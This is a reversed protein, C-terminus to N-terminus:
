QAPRAPNLELHSLAVNVPDSCRVQVLRGPARMQGLRQWFARAGYDGQVGLTSPRWAGFTRGLDDSWRMEVIPLSGPGSSLGVGQVCHLVLSNCRPSGEEIKIFASAGRTLPGAADTYTGKALSWVTGSADDGVFWTGRVYASGVGRFTQQGFSTWQAWQGRGTSDGYAGEITGVRSCDYAYSGVGPINLVYLPHGDFECVFANIASPTACQSIKDAITPSSVPGPVSGARYIMGDDGLWFVTNDLNQVTNRSACGRTAFGSGINPTFSPATIDTSSTDPSWDEVTSSGLFLIHDGLVGIAVNADARLEATAFSLGDVSAADSVDSWYFKDSGVLTYIFRGACFGVDSVPQSFSFPIPAFVNDGNLNYLWAQGDAVIVVQTPSVAARILDNGTIFGLSNGGDDFVAHGCVMVLTSNLSPPSQTLGRVPSGTHTYASVLGPRSYRIERLGVYAAYPREERHPAAEAIMNIPLAEPFGFQRSFADSMFPVRLGTLASVGDSRFEAIQSSPASAVDTM